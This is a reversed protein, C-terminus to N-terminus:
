CFDVLVYQNDELVKAYNGKTLVLVGEDTKVETADEDGAVVVSILVVVVVSLFCSRIKM